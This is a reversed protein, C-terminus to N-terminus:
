EKNECKAGPVGAIHTKRWKVAAPVAIVMLLLGGSFYGASRIFASALFSFILAAPIKIMFLKMSERSKQIEKELRFWWGILLIFFLIGAVGTESVLKGFMTSGDESNLEIGYLKDIMYRADSDPLPDCGMMNFGLGLGNTRELNIWADQWGQLYVLSSPNKTEHHMAMIGAARDVTPKLFLDYNVTAALAIVIAVGLGYRASRGASGLIFKYFLIWSVALGILTSSRSFILLLFLAWMGAQRLQKKEAVLLIALCPFLSFAVHSPESFLGSLKGGARYIVQHPFGAPYIAEVMFGAFAALLIWPAIRQLKLWDEESAQWGVELGFLVLFFLVPATVEFKLLKDTCIGTRAALYSALLFVLMVLLASVTFRTVKRRRAFWFIGALALVAVNLGLKYGLLEVNFPWLLTNAVFWLQLMGNSEV